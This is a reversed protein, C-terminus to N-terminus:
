LDQHPEVVINHEVGYVLEDLDLKVPETLTSHPQQNVTLNLNRVAKVGEVKLMERYLNTPYLEEGFNWNLPTLYENLAEKVAQSVADFAVYPEATIRAEVQIAKYEPGKVYVETTLLRFQNLHRCVQQILEPSPEPPMEDHDPVVVVTVSGPVQVGPHNPHALPLTTAKIIGGVRKALASFDEDTVARNRSRLIRPAEEKLQELSQEDRGGVAPRLNAASEVGILSTLPTNILEIGVNGEHGGGYRYETAIIEGGAQPIRGRRGDGFQITGGSADLVYHPDNQGSSLFDEVRQWPEPAEDELELALKLSDPQVPKHRLEFRLNPHGDSNGLIENRVTSLNEVPVTNPCIMDIEPKRSSLYSGSELLVRLWFRPAEVKGEITQGIDAPGELKIHGQRTMALSQDEYVNLRKWHNAGAPKYEWILTVPPAPDVQSQACVQTAAAETKAKLFVYFRLEQPFIPDIAPPDTQQFGLYLANGAQPTWGLPHFSDQLTSNADNIVTFASGDYVQVDALPLRILDIGETSEFILSTDAEPPQAMFPTRPPISEVPAGPQTNLTLQATAPQAPTLKLNILELFKIYNLDPIQNFRYLMVETFWAFLEIITIGPDSPNFDTWEPTYRPIRRQAAEVLQQFNRDDLIPAKLAM